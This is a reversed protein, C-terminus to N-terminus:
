SQRKNKLLLDVAHDFSGAPTVTAGNVFFIEDANQITNLRHAIIVKTTTKPLQNLVEQLSAETVTDINATAEDLILLEPKRIVARMFAILQKQGLSMGEGSGKIETDLGKEFRSLLSEFQDLSGNYAGALALSDEITDAMGYVLNEKLTGPFLFPDQLIFGIKKTREENTYGRIDKGNLYVVGETPDFLRAMLSATTTKGGGTPGVLAYTKGPELTFNIKNLVIKGQADGVGPYSFSVNEFEMVRKTGIKAAISTQPNDIYVLDSEFQLVDSVRDWAALAVQVSTWLQAIRRLPNYFREAYALFGILIGLTLSGVGILYIGYCLVILQAGNNALDYVPPVLSNAFSARVNAKFATQNVEAFRERFYDRRNFAVIVKFNQLSESIEASMGGVSQLSKRNREKLWGSILTTFVLLGLAPLLTAAGLKYQIVLVAIAVGTLAFVSSVFQPLIESFFRALNSTDNNIRSVLDGAKNQNFFSLPLEQLKAFIRSRLNYLVQQGVKGMFRIQTYSAASSIMYVGVLIGAFILTWKLNGSTIFHDVTYAVMFPGLLSFSADIFIAVLAIILKKKENALLGFIKRLGAVTGANKHQIDDLNYKM